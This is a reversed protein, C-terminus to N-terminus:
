IATRRCASSRSFREMTLKAFTRIRQGPTYSFHDLWVSVDPARLNRRNVQSALPDAALFLPLAALVVSRIRM